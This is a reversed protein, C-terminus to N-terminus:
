ELKKFKKMSGLYDWIQKLSESDLNQAPMKSRARFSNPDKVFNSFFEYSYYETINKPVNMEFGVNGGLLNISHCKLCHKQYLKFGNEFASEKPKLSEYRKADYSMIAVLQWSWPRPDQDKFGDKWVMYYPAPSTTEKGHLFNEWVKKQSSVKDVLAYAIYCGEKKLTMTDVTVQYGDAAELIFSDAASRNKFGQELSFIDKCSYAWFMTPKKYAPDNPILIKHSKVHQVKKQFEESTLDFRHFNDACLMLSKLSFFFVLIRRM